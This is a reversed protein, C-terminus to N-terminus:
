AISGFFPLVRTEPVISVALLHAFTLSEKAKERFATNRGRHLRHFPQACNFTSSEEKGSNTYPLKEKKEKGEWGGKKKVDLRHFFM